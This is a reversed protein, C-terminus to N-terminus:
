HYNIASKYLDLSYTRSSQTELEVEASEQEVEVNVIFQQSFMIEVM